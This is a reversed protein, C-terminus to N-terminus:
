VLAGVLRLLAVAGQLRAEAAPHRLLSRITPLDALGEDALTQAMEGVIVPNPHHLLGDLVPRAREPDVALYLRAAQLRTMPADSTLLPEVYPAWSSPPDDTMAEAAQLRLDPVESNLLDFLLTDGSPDGLRHLASAASARVMGDRDKLLARLNPVADTAGLAGLADAAAARHEPVEDTLMTTLQPIAERYGSRAIARMLGVKNASRPRELQTALAAGQDERRTQDLGETTANGDQAVGAQKLLEAATAQTATGQARALASLAAVAVPELVFADEHRTAALWREYEDLGAAVGQQAAATVLVTAAGHHRPNARLITGALRRADDLRGADLAAYAESM